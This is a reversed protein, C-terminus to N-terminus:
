LVRLGKPWLNITIKRLPLLIFKNKKNNKHVNCYIEKFKIRDTESKV